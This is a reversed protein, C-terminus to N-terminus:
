DGLRLIRFAEAYKERIQYGRFIATGRISDGSLKSLGGRYQTHYEEAAHIKNELEEESMAVFYNPNFDNENEVEYEIMTGCYFGPRAASRLVHNYYEHDQNTSVAPILIADPNIDVIKQEVKKLLEAFDFKYLNNHYESPCIFSIKTTEVGLMRCSEYMEKTRESGSYKIYEQKNNDYKVFKNAVETAYLIYVEIRDKICKQILGGCGIVEDDQHPAFIVIRNKAIKM